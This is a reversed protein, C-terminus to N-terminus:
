SNHRLERVTPSLLPVLVAVMYLAGGALVVRGGGFAASVPGVLVQGLPIAIFSGMDDYSAIRSLLNNPVHEQLSTDWAIGFLGSGLGAVFAAAALVVVNVGAGLALLPLAGLVMSLQGLSLLRRATLRYMVISIALLGVAKSSLVMGWSAAGISHSAITPGLVTWIAVQICNTVCFVIVITWVWTISRFGAWGHRIDALVSGKSTMQQALPLRAMCWAAVLYSAADIALAWGGGVAVVILGAVTPGFIKIANRSSGLLSNARQIQTKDVLEPVIGRMAPSTFASFTGNLFELSIIVTLNYTGLVIITAVAGQSVAAGVNSVILVKSRPFRDAVVGGVLLFLVLSVSQAALVLGLDVANKTLNLVAFALAVPAM